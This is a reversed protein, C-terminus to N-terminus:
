EGVRRRIGSGAKAAAYPTKRVHSLRRCFILLDSVFITPWPRNFLWPNFFRVNQAVVMLLETPPVINPGPNSDLSSNRSCNLFYEVDDAPSLQSKQLRLNFCIFELSRWSEDKNETWFRRMVPAFSLFIKIDKQRMNDVNHLWAAKWLRRCKEFSRSM